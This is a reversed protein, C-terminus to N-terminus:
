WHRLTGRPDRGPQWAWAVLRESDLHAILKDPTMGGRAPDLLAKCLEGSSLGDWTMRLPALRWGPAGPVGSADQNDSQHCTRCRLAAAGRDDPGRKVNFLHRHQDDGQRPHDVSTHCNLCRPHKLVAVLEVFAQQSLAVRDAPTTQAVAHRTVLSCGALLIVSTALESVM